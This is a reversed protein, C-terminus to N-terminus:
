GKAVWLRLDSTSALGTNMCWCCPDIDINRHEFKCTQCNKVTEESAASEDVTEFFEFFKEESMGGSVNYGGPVAHHTISYTKDENIIYTHLGGGTKHRCLTRM